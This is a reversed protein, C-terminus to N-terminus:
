AAHRVLDFDGVKVAEAIPSDGLRNIVNAKAGRKLLARAMEHDVNYVAWMLPTSGDPAATNVDVYPSTIAALVAERQGSRILDVLTQPGTDAGSVTAAGLSLLALVAMAKPRLNRNFM